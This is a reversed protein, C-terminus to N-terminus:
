KDHNTRQNPNAQYGFKHAAMMALRSQEKGSNAAQQGGNKSDAQCKEGRLLDCRQDGILDPHTASAQQENAQRCKEKKNVSPPFQGQPKRFGGRGRLFDSNSTM